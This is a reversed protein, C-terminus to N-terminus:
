YEERVEVEVAPILTGPSSTDETFSVGVIEARPEFEEVAEKVEALLMPKAVPIPKDVFRQPLGFQRYLPSTGRM